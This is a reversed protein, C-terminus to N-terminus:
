IPAVLLERNVIVGTGPIAYRPAKQNPIVFSQTSRSM